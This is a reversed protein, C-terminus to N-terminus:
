SKLKNQASKGKKLYKFIGFGALLLVIPVVIWAFLPIRTGKKANAAQSGGGEKEKEAMQTGDPSIEKIFELSGIYYDNFEGYKRKYQGEQGLGAIIEYLSDQATKTRALQQYTRKFYEADLNTSNDPNMKFDFLQYYTKECFSYNADFAEFPPTAPGGGAGASGGKLSIAQDISNLLNNIRAEPVIAAAITNHLNALEPCSNFKADNKISEQLYTLNTINSKFQILNNKLQYLNEVPTNESTNAFMFQNEFYEIQYIPKNQVYRNSYTSFLEECSMGSQPMTNDDQSGPKTSIANGDEGKKSTKPPLLFSWNMLNGKDNLEISNKKESGIYLALILSVPQSTHNSIKLSIAPMGSTFLINNYPMVQITGPPSFTLSNALPGSDKGGLSAKKSLKKETQNAHDLLNNDIKLILDIKEPKQIQTNKKDAWEIGFYLKLEGPKQEQIFFSPTIKCTYKNDVFLQKQSLATSGYNLQVQAEASSHVSILGTIILIKIIRIM